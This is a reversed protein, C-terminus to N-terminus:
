AWIIARALSGSPISDLVDADGAASYLTNRPTEGGDLIRHPALWLVFLRCRPRSLEGNFARPREVVIM